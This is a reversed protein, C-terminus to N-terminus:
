NRTSFGHMDPFESRLDRSLQELFGSGWTSEMQRTVIDKGLEWYLYLLETNIRISAKIQSRRISVKLDTLWQQYGNDQRM